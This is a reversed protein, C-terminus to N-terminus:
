FRLTLAGFTGHATPTVSLAVAPESKTPRTLWFITAAALAGVGVALSVDAIRFETDVKSKDSAVCGHDCGFRHDDSVGRAGFYAFAGLGVVGVGALIWTATPVRAESTASTASTASAAFTAIVSRNKEGARVVLTQRVPKEGDREFTIAHAGPDLPVPKGQATDGAPTGDASVRVDLLDRADADRAGFVVTPLTAEVEVLWRTCDKQVEDPCTSKACEIFRARASVLKGADRQQQGAVAADFCAEPSAHAVSAVLGPLTLALALAVHHRRSIM